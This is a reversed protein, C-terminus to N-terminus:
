GAVLEAHAERVPVEFPGSTKSIEPGPVPFPGDGNLTFTGRWSTTVSVRRAGPTEYTHSVSMNPYVEGPESFEKVVGDDFTWTWRARARVVVAFGLVDFSETTIAAPEGAAFLTPLNVIGGAAPQFTPQADPLYKPVEARVAQAVDPMPSSPDGPGLCETRDLTWPGPPVRRHVKFRIEGPGTCGVRAGACGVETLTAESAVCAPVRSWECEPCEAVASAPAGVDSGSVVELGGLSAGHTVVAGRGQDGAAEPVGRCDKDRARCHEDAVVTAPVGLASLALCLTAVIRMWRKM